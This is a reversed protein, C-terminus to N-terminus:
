YFSGVFSLYNFFWVSYSTHATQKLFMCCITVDKFCSIYYQHPTSLMSHIPSSAWKSFKKRTEIVNDLTTQQISMLLWRYLLCSFNKCFFFYHNKIYTWKLINNSLNGITYKMIKEKKVYISIKMLCSQFWRLLSITLKKFPFYM